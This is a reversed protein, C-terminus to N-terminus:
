LFWIIGWTLPVLTVMYWHVSATQVGDSSRNSSSTSSGSSESSSGSSSGGNSSSGSGGGSGGSGGGSSSGSNSSSSTRPATLSTDTQSETSGYIDDATEEISGQWCYKSFCEKCEDSQLLKFREQQRRIIACGICKAWDTSNDRTSVEFGNQILGLKEDEDYSMKYTSTNAEYSYESNPFYIVLPIDTENLGKKDHYEVLASLNSADCGFFTPKKNLDNDVFYEATPVYPFPSGNGQQTFQRQYTHVISTGNPWNDDLDASNDYAFIVDVGRDTQILPYFPVNQSDEGGDVLYLTDNSTISDNGWETKYFPNPKYNAVDIEDYSVLNLLKQIVTKLISSLGMNPLRLVLQNFLTSSTGMIFGANDFNSVCQSSEGNSLESGVYHTDVFAQLSPDWSGLEYPSIEFVTSNGNIIQTGPTRGDAVVIPYPMEHNKFSSLNRISSWTVNDGDTDSTYFQYSLAKGWIDTITVDYGADDKANIANYVEYYYKATKYVNIGNPNFITDELDWIKAEGDIIDGVSIWDNLVLSGVLWNGGLLGSLYSASQLVGGLGDSNADDYRDDLGLIQGAGCLMARYGGGSFALGITINHAEQYNDIFDRANFDSLNARNNLFDILNKNTTEWRKEIYSKEDDNLGSARRILSDSSCSTNHPAYNEADEDNGLNSIDNGLSGIESTLSSLSSGSKSGDGSGSSAKSSSSSSSSSSTRSSSSSSSSSSDGDDEWPWKFGDVSTVLVSIIVLLFWSSRIRDKLIM